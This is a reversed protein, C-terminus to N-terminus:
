GHLTVSSFPSMCVIKYRGSDATKMQAFMIVKDQNVEFSKKENATLYLGFYEVFVVTGTDLPTNIGSQSGGRSRQGEM